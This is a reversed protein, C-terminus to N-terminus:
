RIGRIIQHNQISKDQGPSGFKVMSSDLSCFIIKELGPEGFPNIDANGQKIQFM